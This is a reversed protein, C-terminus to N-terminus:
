ADPASQHGLRRFHEALKDNAMKEFEQSEVIEVAREIPIVVGFGTIREDFALDHSEASATRQEVPVVIQDYKGEVLHYGVLMGVLSGNSGEPSLSVPQLQFVPSGSLGAITRLDVLYAEVFGRGTFVPESVVSAINGSRVLQINSTQGRHSTYLGIAAVPDGLQVGEMTSRDREIIDRGIEMANIDYGAPDIWIPFLSMDVARTPHDFRAQADLRITEAPLGKRNIRYALRSRSAPTLDEVVHTATMIFAFFNRERYRKVVLSGTGVPTFAGSDALVGIFVVCNPLQKSVRM